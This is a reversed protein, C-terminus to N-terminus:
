YRIRYLLGYIKNLLRIFWRALKNKASFPKKIEIPSDDTDVIAFAEKFPYDYPYTATGKDGWLRGWSNQILWGDKNWGYLVIAHGGYEGSLSSTIIGDKVKMDDYWKVTLIIPMGSMLATKIEKETSVKLYSTFHFRQASEQLDKKKIDVMQAIEPMEFYFPFEYEFPAGDSCFNAIAYRTVMGKNTSSLPAERNGYIYGRSIKEDEQYQKQCYYEAVLAISNAVCACVSGQNKVAPMDLKFSEPFETKLSRKNIKYDRLDPNSSIAGLLGNQKEEM